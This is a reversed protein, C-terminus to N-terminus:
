AIASGAPPSSPRPWGTASRHPARRPPMALILDYDTAELNANLFPDATMVPEWRDLLRGMDYCSALIRSPAEDRGRTAGDLHTLVAHPTWVVQLGLQRVRLCFDVDNCTIPFSEDFGGAQEFVARRVMLCAGTVAGVARPLAIQGLYGSEEERASRLIHTAGNEDLAIGGHQLTGDAYLLRAGVVGVGPRIAHRVMEDLWDPSEIEIDDNLFLLLESDTEAALRNNLRSWNFPDAMRLVRVRSDTELRRLLALTEEEKSGNDAILVDLRPYSTQELLGALCAELLEPNDKTPILVTVRPADPLPYRLCPWVNGGVYADTLDLGPRAEGLHRLVTKRMEPHAQTTRLAPFALPQGPLRGKHFLVAPIHAVAGPFLGETVRLLLDYQAFSGADARIGGVAELRSRAILALQGICDGAYLLDQSWGSKFRPRCREGRANLSDEDCYLLALEEGAAITDAFQYLADPALRDGANLFGVFGGDSAALAAQWVQGTSQGAPVDLSSIAPLRAAAEDLVLRVAAPLGAPCAVTLTWRGYIQRDLSEITESLLDARSDPAIMLLSLLPGDRLTTAAHERMALLDAPGPTGYHGLWLRYGFDDSPSIGDPYFVRLLDVGEAAEDSAAVIILGAGRNPAGVIAAIGQVDPDRDLGNQFLFRAYAEDCVDEPGHLARFEGSGAILHAVDEFRSGSRLLHGFYAIADPEPNRGLGARFLRAVASIIDLPM